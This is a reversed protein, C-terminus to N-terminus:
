VDPVEMEIRSLVIEGGQVLRAPVDCEACRLRAGRKVDRQCRPCTWRAAASEVVLEADRCSTRERFTDYATVLLPVDVGSLEGICVHVRKIATARVRGAEHDVRDILSSVISYEHM